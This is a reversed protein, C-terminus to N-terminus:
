GALLIGCRRWGSSASCTSGRLQLKWAWKSAPNGQSGKTNPGAPSASFVCNQGQQLIGSNCQWLVGVKVASSPIFRARELLTSFCGLYEDFQAGPDNSCTAQLAAPLSQYPRPRIHAAARVTRNCPSSTYAQRALTTYGRQTSNHCKCAKSNNLTSMAANCASCLWSNPIFCVSSRLHM